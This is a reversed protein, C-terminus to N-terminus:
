MNKMMADMTPMDCDHLMGKSLAFYAFGVALLWLAFVSLGIALAFTEGILIGFILALLVGPILPILYLFIMLVSLLVSRSAIGTVRLFALTAGLCNFSFSIYVVASLAFELPAARLVLAPVGFILVAEVSVKFVTEINAWLWKKFPNEPIMYIYHSYIELSGREASSAFFYILLMTSLISIVVGNANAAEELGNRSFFAFIGAGAIYFLTPLGWLGFRKTRFSERIHKPLFVSAGWGSTIGTGKVRAKKSM